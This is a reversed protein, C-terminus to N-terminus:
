TKSYNIISNLIQESTNGDGFFNPCNKFHKFNNYESIIKNENYGVLISNGSQLLEVWETEERPVISVKKLFFAEKQLGGSDTIVLKSNNVLWLMELYVVPSIIDFDVCLKFKNIAKITRPHFPAVVKTSENIKNLASLVSLLKKKNSTIEARHITALVYNVKKSDFKLSPQKMKKSFRIVGEYMIDGVNKINVDSFKNFGEEILNKVANQTPCFLFNSVRDTIIRNVEEPMSMNYSRLGSEIHAINIKLKSAVIAGALTSNTDGFVIIWDPKEILCIKEIGIIMKGTMEGQSLNNIGLNYKPKSINLDMFLRGSMNEDYHQGTHIVIDKIKSSFKEHIMKNLTASKIIQPRAGVITIIKKLANVKSM